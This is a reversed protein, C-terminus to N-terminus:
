AAESEAHSSYFWTPERGLVSGVRIVKEWRPESDGSVWGQVSRLTVGVERALAEQTIDAAKLAFRLNKGFPSQTNAEHLM